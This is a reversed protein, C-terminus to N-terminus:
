ARRPWRAWRRRWSLDPTSRLSRLTRARRAEITEAECAAHPGPAQARPLARLEEVPCASGDLVHHRRAQLQRRRYARICFSIEICFDSMIWSNKRHERRTLRNLEAIALPRLPRFPRCLDM